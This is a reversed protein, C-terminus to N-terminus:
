KKAEIGLGCDFREKSDLENFKPEETDQFSVRRIARFGAEQLMLRLGGEDWMWLHRSNGFSSQLIGMLGTQRDQLGMLLSGVFRIGADQDPNSAYLKALAELDPVVVRFFGGKKLYHYTNKIAKKCDLFSLHELVHSCYIADCSERSIPLGKVINGYKVNKPFRKANRSYLGGIFPIREFRLTPSADYNEWGEPATLGCGFHLYM